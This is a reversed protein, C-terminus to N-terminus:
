PSQPKCKRERSQGLVARNTDIKDLLANRGDRFAQSESREYLCLFCTCLFGWGRKLHKERDGFRETPVQNLYNLLVQEGAALDRAARVMMMDGLFSRCATPWCSHNIFSPMVWIGCGMQGKSDIDGQPTLGNFGFANLQM